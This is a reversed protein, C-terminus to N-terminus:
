KGNILLLQQKHVGHSYRRYTILDKLVAGAKVSMDTDRVLKM